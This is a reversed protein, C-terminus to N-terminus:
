PSEELSTFHLTRQEVYDFFPNWRLRMADDASLQLVGREGRLALNGLQIGAADAAEPGGYIPDDPPFPLAVHSLSYVGSPWDGIYVSSEPASANGAATFARVRPSRSNENTVVTLDYGRDSDELLPTFETRPDQKLLISSEVRRNIDFLVLEHGAPPLRAFLNKVLATATVTADTSSQFALIPAMNQLKGKEQLASLQQQIHATIRYALDGANVAFSGYKYPDYEPLVSVWALKDMGLVRGLRGQWVAFAASDSVGIEPSLLIVGAPKPLSADDLSALAYDVALAGGNSYGVLYWPKDPTVEQMHKAALKVAAAMDQWRVDVLGSPATGHGPLRLGLVNAGQQHLGAALARMSYPSDSLGHLMLVSARPAAHKLEFSRNWNVPLASPDSLSGRSYRNIANEPGSAVKDYVLTGLQEFLRQELQLYEAFSTVESDASYEADLEVVHWVSLDPRDNLLMVYAIVVAIFVGCLWAALYKLVQLTARTIRFQRAM